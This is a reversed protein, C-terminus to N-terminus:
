RERKREAPSPARTHCFEQPVEPGDALRNSGSKSSATTGVHGETSIDIYTFSIIEKEWVYPPSPTPDEKFAFCLAQHKQRDDVHVCNIVYPSAEKTHWVLLM